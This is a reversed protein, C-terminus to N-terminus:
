GGGAAPNGSVQFTLSIKQDPFLWPIKNATLSFGGHNDMNDSHQRTNYCVLQM